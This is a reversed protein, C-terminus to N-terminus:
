DVPSRFSDAPRLVVYLRELNRMDVAPELLAEQFVDVDKQRAQLVRGIVLGSPFTGGTGSTIAVDETRLPDTRPVYQLLLRGDGTGRVIGTTRSDPDQIRASVASNVDTILLVRAASPYVEVIRGVLGRWTIVPAGVVVSDGSGRDVTVAQVISLPDQAIVNVSLLSGLTTRQRLDLLRRLDENELELERMQIVLAQLRDMEQRYATNQARLEGAQRVTEALHAVSGLAGSVGFQLPAIVYTGLGELQHAPGPLGVLVGALLLAALSAWAPM